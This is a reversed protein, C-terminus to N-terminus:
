LRFDNVFDKRSEIRRNLLRLLVRPDRRLFAAPALSAVSPDDELGRVWDGISISLDEAGRSISSLLTSSDNSLKTLHKYKASVNM